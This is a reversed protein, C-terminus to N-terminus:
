ILRVKQEELVRLLKAQLSLPMDGIEDLLLTGKDAAEILGVKNQTAGSFAGKEYGFLESEILNEPIAACNVAIFPGTRVTSTEHLLKAVQEKGSGSEGLILVSAETKAVQEILMRLEQMIQSSGILGRLGLKSDRKVAVHELRTKVQAVADLLSQRKFPKLLFDVAGMKMAWVADQVEGFATMVIFPIQFGLKQYAEVFQMGSMNPMRVDTVILQPPATKLIGLAEEASSVSIVDFESFTLIRATSSLSEPDDDVVLIKFNM